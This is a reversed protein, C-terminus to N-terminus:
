KKGNLLELNLLWLKIRGTLSLKNETRKEIKYVGLKKVNVTKEEQYSNVWIDIQKTIIRRKVKGKYRITSTNSMCDNVFRFGYREVFLWDGYHIKPNEPHRCRKHLRRCAGCLLDRSVAVGGPEVHAGTSTHFPTSDTQGPVSRYSTVTLNGILIAVFVMQM